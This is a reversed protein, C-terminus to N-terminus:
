ILAERNPNLFGISFACTHQELFIESEEIDTIIENM